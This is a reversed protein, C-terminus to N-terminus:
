QQSPDESPQAPRHTFRKGTVAGESRIVEGTEMVQKFRRLDDAIQLEPEEGFMRAVAAGLKSAPPHYQLEVYIETGRGGPAERFRVSGSNKVEAPEVSRWAIRDNPMDEVIEADWDISMGMPGKARWHSRGGIEVQVSELHSMIQPLNRFDRWFRYVEDRPQRITVSQVVHVGHEHRRRMTASEQGLQAACWVDLAAVGVVAASAVAVRDQDHDDDGLASGLLALDMADGAVRARVWNLPRSGAMIGIGAMIERLGIARMIAVTNTDGRAGIMQALWRPALIQVLGLGLSFWGL